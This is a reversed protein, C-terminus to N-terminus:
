APEDTQSPQFKYGYAIPAEEGSSRIRRTVMEVRMGDRAEGPDIDTIMAAVVPGEDLRVMGAIYPVQETFGRPAEYVTSSCLLTGFGKFRFPELDTSSCEACRIRNPFMLVECARCRSGLLRINSPQQRWLRAIVM